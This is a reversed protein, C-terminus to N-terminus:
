DRKSGWGRGEENEVKRESTMNEIIKKRTVVCRLHKIVSLSVTSATHAHTNKSNKALVLSKVQLIIVSIYLSLSFFVFFLLHVFRIRLTFWTSVIFSSLGFDHRPIKRSFNVYKSLIGNSPRLFRVFVRLTEFIWYNSIGSIELSIFWANCIAFWVVQFIFILAILPFEFLNVSLERVFDLWKQHFHIVQKTEIKFFVSKLPLDQFQNQNKKKPKGHEM